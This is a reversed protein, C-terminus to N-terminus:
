KYFHRSSKRPNISSNEVLDSNGKTTTTSTETTKITTTPVKLFRLTFVRNKLKNFDGLTTTTVTKLTVHYLYSTVNCLNVGRKM